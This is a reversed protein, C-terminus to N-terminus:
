IRGHSFLVTDGSLLLTGFACGKGDESHGISGPNFLYMPRSLTVDVIREGAPIVTNCPVHTHGFLVIDAETRAAHAILAGIGGKVGYLHGHTLLLKHGELVVTREIPTDTHMGWDCNGRVAYLMTRGMQLTEVDRLGDGLFCVAQPPRLQKSLAAQMGDFRGHSDSFIVLEM